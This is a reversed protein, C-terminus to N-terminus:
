RMEQGGTVNISQGTMSSSQESALFLAVNAVEEPTQARGQPIKSILHERVEEVRMERKAAYEIELRDWHPTFVIGPCIANVNIGDKAVDLALSQTLAIVGAKSASYAAFWSAPSKASKSSINIIKGKKRKLMHSLVAKCCLFTGKLNVDIIRDWMEESMKLFPLTKAIGANNVLVDIQGFKEITKRAMEQVEKEKTVDVKLALSERGLSIIEERVGSASDFNIDAVVIDAGEKAFSTSIAKGIGQGAGTVIAVKNKLRM